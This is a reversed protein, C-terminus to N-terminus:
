LQIEDRAEREEGERAIGREIWRGEEERERRERGRERERAVPKKKRKMIRAAVVEEAM